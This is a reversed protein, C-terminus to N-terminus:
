SKGQLWDYYEYFMNFLEERSVQKNFNTEVMFKDYYDLMINISNMVEIKTRVLKINTKM